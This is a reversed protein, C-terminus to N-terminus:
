AQLRHLRAPRAAGLVDTRTCPRNPHLRAALDGRNHACTLHGSSLRQMLFPRCKTVQGRRTPAALHNRLTTAESRRQRERPARRVPALSHSSDGPLQCEEGREGRPWRWAIEAALGFPFHFHFQRLSRARLTDPQRDVRRCASRQRSGRATDKRRFRSLTAAPSCALGASYHALCVAGNPATM